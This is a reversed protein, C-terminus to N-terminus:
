GTFRALTAPAVARSTGSRSVTLEGSIAVSQPTVTITATYARSGPPVLLTELAEKPEFLAVLLREGGTPVQCYDALVARPGDRTWVFGIESTAAPGLAQSGLCLSRAESAIWSPRAFRQAAKRGGPGFVILPASGLHTGAPPLLAEKAALATSSRLAGLEFPLTVAMLALM